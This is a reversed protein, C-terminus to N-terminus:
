GDDGRKGAGLASRRVGFAAWALLALSLWVPWDGLRVYWTLDSRVPLDEVIMGRKFIPVQSLTRGYPDIFASIGTAAARAISRRTEVARLPAMAAHQLGVSPRDSWADSTLIALLTAGHRALQRTIQPFASEFCICVGVKEGDVPLPEWSKGAALDEQPVGYRVIWPFLGRAPVYEGYPVRQRKDYRGVLRAGADIDLASNTPQGTAPDKAFAGGIIWAGPGLLEAVGVRERISEATGEPLTTEPWVVLAAGEAVAMRTMLQYDQTGGINYVV